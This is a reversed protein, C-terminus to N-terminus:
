VPAARTQGPVASHNVPAARAVGSACFARRTGSSGAEYGCCARFTCNSGVAMLHTRQKREFHGSSGAESGCFVRCTGLAASHEVPAARTQGPVASHEVSAARAAAYEFLAARAWLRSTRENRANSIAARFISGGTRRKDADDKVRRWRAEHM